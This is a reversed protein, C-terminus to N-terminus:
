QLAFGCNNCFKAGSPNATGCKSCTSGDSGSNINVQIRPTQERKKGKPPTYLQKIVAKAFRALGHPDSVQRFIVYAKGGSMFLVDGITTSTGSGSGVGTAAFGRGFRGTYMGIRTSESQRKQNMVVVDDVDGLPIRGCDHANFDYILARFNTLAWLWKVHKNIIGETGINVWLLEEGESLFPVRYYLKTTELNGDVYYHHEVSNWYLPQLEIHKNIQDASEEVFKDEIDFVITKDDRTKVEVFKNSKKMLGKKEEFVNASAINNFQLEFSEIKGKKNRFELKNGAEIPHIILQDLDKNPKGDVYERIEVDYEYRKAQNVDFIPRMTLDSM